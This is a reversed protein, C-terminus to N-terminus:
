RVVDEERREADILPEAPEEKEAIICEWLLLLL